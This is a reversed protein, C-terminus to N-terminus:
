VRRQKLKERRLAGRSKRDELAPPPAAPGSDPPAALAAMAAVTPGEFLAVPSLNAQLAANVKSILKIGALSNGGLDFFNDHIGVQDLGLTEEWIKAIKREAENRPGVYAGALAPRAHVERAEEVAALEDLTKVTFSEDIRAQFDRRSVAVQALNGRLARELAEIGQAPSVGQRINEERWAKLEAPVETEVAMGVEQWADWNVSVTFPGGRATEAHAWADLVANAAAYDAQGPQALVATVSSFLAVFALPQDHFLETLIRMGQVKPAMVAEAAERTKTAILGAGPVGAAHFIGDIRGFRALAQGRLREMSQRDASDAAVVLVEAGMEELRRVQRIRRSTRDDTASLPLGSRSALILKAHYRLALHEAVALAIGGLGGTLLYVGGEALRPRGADKELRVPEWSQVWRHAGRWAAVRDGAQTEAILADLLVDLRRPHRVPIDMARCTVHSMERPIVKCLGLVAAREPHLDEEGTVEQAGTTVVLLDVPEEGGRRGLAKAFALLVPFLDLSREWLLVIRRPSRGDAALDTLLSEYDDV